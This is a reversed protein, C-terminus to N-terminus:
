VKAYIPKEYNTNTELFDTSDTTRYQYGSIMEYYKFFVWEDSKDREIYATTPASALFPLVSILKKAVIKKYRM